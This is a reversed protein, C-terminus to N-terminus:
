TSNREDCIPTSIPSTEVPGSRECVIMTRSEASPPQSFSALSVRHLHLRRRGLRLQHVPDRLVSACLQQRTWRLALWFGVASTTVVGARAFVAVRALRLTGANWVRHM